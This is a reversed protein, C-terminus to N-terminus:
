KQEINTSRNILSLFDCNSSFAFLRLYQRRQPVFNFVAIDGQNYLSLYVMKGSVTLLETMYLLTADWKKRAKRDNLVAKDTSNRQTWIINLHFAFPRQMIDINSCLCVWVILGASLVVAINTGTFFSFAHSLFKLSIECSVKLSKKKKKLYCSYFFIYLM